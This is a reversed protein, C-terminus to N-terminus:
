GVPLLVTAQAGGEKRNIIEITGHHVQVVSKAVSLGLGTGGQGRKTTFFPDFIHSLVDAPIGPGTDEVKITMVEQGVKFTDEKRRGVQSGTETLKQLATTITISGGSPMAEAANSILNVFLGLIKGRDVSVKPLDTKFNKVVQVRGTELQRKLLLLASEIISDLNEPKLNLIEPRGLELLGKVVYDAREVAQMMDELLQPLEPNGSKGHKKLYDVGQLLVALPNKVEHAVGFALQGAAAQRESQLVANELKKQETLDRVIATFIFGGEMEVKSITIMAPFEEGNKRRGFLDSRNPILKSIANQAAFGKVHERHKGQFREPLLLEIPKGLIEDMRYGFIKQAERNFLIIKQNEDISVIGDSAADLIFQFRDKSKELEATRQKVREELIDKSKDIHELASVLQNTRRNFAYALEGL